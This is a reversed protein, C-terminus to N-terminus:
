RVRDNPAVNAQTHWDIQVAVRKSATNRLNILIGSPLMTNWKQHLSGQVGLTCAAHKKRLVETEM